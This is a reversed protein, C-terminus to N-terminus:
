AAIVRGSLGKKSKASRNSKRCLARLGSPASCGPDGRDSAAKAIGDISHQEVAGAADGEGMGRVVYGQRTGSRNETRRRGIDTPRDAGAAFDRQRLIPGRLDFIEVDPTFCLPASESM